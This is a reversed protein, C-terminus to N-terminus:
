HVLLVSAATYMNYYTPILKLVGGLSAGGADEQVSTPSDIMGFGNGPITGNTMIAEEYVSEEVVILSTLETV